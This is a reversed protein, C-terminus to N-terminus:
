SMHLRKLIRCIALSLWLDTDNRRNKLIRLKWLGNNQQHAALWIMVAEIQPEDKSFGLASLTDMASILDTFWFPFTFKLWFDPSGRDPYNDKKFLHSLLLKGADKAEVSNCYITHAAYARLVIGTVLHSFPKSREPELTQTNMAIIDLKKNQTRLPIAWGGDNQRLSHLWQFAKEVRYDNTYGAKILLELIAATYYPTYQNGLIGRIDGENTQFHFLYDAAKAVVANSTHFGYMEVLYGLNRFTEIQNYNETSRINKNGGAYKWSGDQQQKKVIKQAEPLDWLVEPKIDRKGLLDREAFFEVAADKSSLLPMLPDYKLVAQWHVM